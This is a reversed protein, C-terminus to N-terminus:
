RIAITLLLLFLITFCGGIIMGYCFSLEDVKREGQEKLWGMLSM